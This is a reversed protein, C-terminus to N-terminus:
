KMLTLKKTVTEFGEAQVQILYLGNQYQDMKLRQTPVQVEDIEVLDVLQGASNFIRINTNHGLYASLDVFTEGSSPNPYINVEPQYTFHVEAQDISADPAGLPNANGIVEVNEFTGTVSGSAAKNATVLGIQICNAMQIQTVLVASWSVGDTSHYAGFTNGNRTLRLWNKGATQFQHAFAYGGSSQRLERMTLSTGDIMLQLMKAGSLLSERMTIGAWGNGTVDTVEAIIEGDGCLDTRIFGHLDNPSYFGPDYCGESTMTFTETGADYGATSGGPCNIGDPDFSFDCPFGGVEVNATCQAPNGAADEVMVTVPVISGLQDCTVSTPTASVFNVTGCNDTSNVDDFVDAATLFIEDEGNFEILPDLCVPSPPENDIIEVLFSCKKQNNAADKAQWQIKWFGGALTQMATTTYGSWDEGPINNGMNDVKRYRYRLVTVACNDNNATPTPVTFTAECTGPDSNLSIDGPCSITPDENDEVTVTMACTASNGDGDIVTFTVTTTGVPYNDSADATGNYDNTITTGFCGGSVTPAPVSIDANCQGPDNDETIDNSCVITPLGFVEIDDSASNTCGTGQDTYEYTITTTGVGAVVPDFSYTMGNNDDVVGDGSYVGGIPTGGGLGAQVGANICLDAPATFTVNPLFFVEVDDTATNTCGNADTYEYTLIHTGQGADAPDFSYTGGNDTVGAGSYTGGAPSGGGLGTQLGDNLCLDALATFTVNPLPFVGVDDSAANTCGNGDTFTYTITHVGVGTNVADPDFTYTEGNGSDTVGDGSYVGGTPMGGGLGGQAGANICLDAPATFTVNPLAFVQVDDSAMNTCGNSPDVYTYTITHVGVGTAMADPDFSYTMGNNDDVVGDGSYVGGIPTGGGLGAQVGADICLDALATFQVNPFAVTFTTQDSDSCGNGDTFTYTIIHDGQGAAMPNFIFNIGDGLDTIGTGSYVGGMGAPTGFNSMFQVGDSPCFDGNQPAMNANIQIVNIDDTASGGNTYTVTELGAGAAVPDFTFDTGNNNDTVGTGSYTGGTPMGGGIVVPGDDICVNQITAVFNVVVGPAIDEGCVQLGTQDGDACSFVNDSNIVFILCNNAGTGSIVNGTLNGNTPGFILSGSTGSGTVGEYVSLKDNSGMIDEITGQVITGQAAMGASPCVEFAVTNAEFNDYCYFYTTMGGPCGCDLVEVDDMVTGCSTTYSITKIGIGAVGPNFNYTGNGNDVVGPGSYTGGAPSGGGLNNQIGANICLDAPATFAPAAIVTMVDTAMGSNTYTITNAGIVVGTGAPNFSFSGTNDTVGNGSYTGGAPTGGTIGSVVGGNACVQDTSLILNVTTAPQSTCNAEVALFTGDSCSNPFGFFINNVVFVLCADVVTSTVTNGSVDEVGGVATSQFLVTGGVVSEYVTLGVADGGFTGDFTGQTIQAQATEGANPCLTFAVTNTETQGYCYTKTSGDCNQAASYSPFSLLAMGLLFSIIRTFYKKM